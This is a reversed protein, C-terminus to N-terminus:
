NGQEDAEQRALWHRAEDLFEQAETLMEEVEERSIGSTAAYDGLQIYRKAKVLLPFRNSM